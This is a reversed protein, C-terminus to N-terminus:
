FFICPVLEHYLRRFCVQQPARGIFTKPDLLRDLQHHIPSFYSTRQVRQILDNELGEEKVMASAEQSLRRVEEHCEQYFVYKM